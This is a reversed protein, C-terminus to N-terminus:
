RKHKGRVFGQGPRSGGGAAPGGRDVRNRMSGGGDSREPMAPSIRPDEPRSVAEVSCGIAFGHQIRHLACRAIDAGGICIIHGPIPCMAIRRGYCRGIPGIHRTAGRLGYRNGGTVTSLLGDVNHPAISAHITPARDLESQHPKSPCRITPQPNRIAGCRLQRDDAARMIASPSANWKVAYVPVLRESSVACVFSHSSIIRTQGPVLWFERSSNQRPGADAVDM